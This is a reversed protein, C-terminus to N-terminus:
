RITGIRERHNIISAENSSEMVPLKSINYLFYLSKKKYSRNNIQNKNHYTHLMKLMDESM